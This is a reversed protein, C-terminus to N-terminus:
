YLLQTTSFKAFVLEVCVVKECGHFGKELKQRWIPQFKGCM